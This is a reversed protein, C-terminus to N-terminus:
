QCFFHLLKVHVKPKPSRINIEILNVLILPCNDVFMVTKNTQSLHLFTITYLFSPCLKARNGLCLNYM